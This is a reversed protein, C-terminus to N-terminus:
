PKWAMTTQPGAVIREILNRWFKRGPGRQAGGFSMKPRATIESFPFRVTFDLKKQKAICNSMVNEIIERREEFLGNEYLSYATKIREVIKDATTLYSRDGNRIRNLRDEIERREILLATKRQELSNKDLLTDLYADTLRDIREQIASLNFELSKIQEKVQTNWNEKKERCILDIIEKEESSLQLRRFLELFQQEIQEQKLTVALEHRQHCRYYVLGKHTEGILSRSCESCKVIRSFTFQRTKTRLICKGSLVAKVQEFLDKSILPPHVGAFVQGSKRVRLEGVYFPNSLIRAVVNVTVKKGGARTPTARTRLGMRYLEETLEYQSYHGSAYLEFARKVIPGYVPDITKPKGEGNNLYGLPAPKPCLGQKLRGYYGKKVEERLNRIYHAAVVAQVDASLVGGPSSFDVSENAFHVDIGADHLQGIEAWDKLNRAFRDIKHIIVGDAQGRRLSRLMQNFVPRGIKAATEKETFWSDIQLDRRAAYREIADKQEQLSVGHEGQRVTSVRTYAYYRKV